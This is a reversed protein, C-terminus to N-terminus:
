VFGKDSAPDPMPPLEDVWKNDVYRRKTTWIHEVRANYLLEDILRALKWAYTEDLKKLTTEGLFESPRM